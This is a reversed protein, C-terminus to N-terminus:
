KNVRNRPLFVPTILNVKRRGANVLLVTLRKAMDAQIRVPLGDFDKGDWVEVPKQNVSTFTYKAM